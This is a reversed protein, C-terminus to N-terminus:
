ILPLNESSNTLIAILAKWFFCIQHTGKTIHYFMDTLLIFIRRSLISNLIIYHLLLLYFTDDQLSLKFFTKRCFFPLVQREIDENDTLTNTKLLVRNPKQLENFIM